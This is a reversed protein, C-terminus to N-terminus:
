ITEEGLLSREHVRLSAVEYLCLMLRLTTPNPPWRRQTSPSTTRLDVGQICPVQGISRYGDRAETETDEEHDM